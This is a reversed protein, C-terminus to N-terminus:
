LVIFLQSGMGHFSSILTKFFWSIVLTPDLLRLSLVAESLRIKRQEMCGPSRPLLWSQRAQLVHCQLLKPQKLLQMQRTQKSVQTSIKLKLIKEKNHNIYLAINIKNM